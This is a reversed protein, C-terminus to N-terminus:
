LLTMHKSATSLQQYEEVLKDLFTFLAWNMTTYDFAKMEQPTQVYPKHANEQLVKSENLILLEIVEPTFELHCQFGYVLNTYEIIQRPCGASTAIVKADPTLGPMDNHWHGVDLTDGFHKFKSHQRGIETLLIPFVGIEQEPSHSFANCLAEAILQAGLCVGIVAKNANICKLILEKEKQANFYPCEKVTTIPDQPGGLVILLDIHEASAPLTNYEYIKTMSVSYGKKIVWDLYAGPAEFEEHIVFHVHM